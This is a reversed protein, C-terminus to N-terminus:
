NGLELQNKVLEYYKGKRKTLEAHTGTEQVKGHELVIIQDANKVTSLRHAVVIVTKGKYFQKLNEVITRENNADLANTAEDFFLFPPNKYVARAILIRQKQGQSLGQGEQGIKTNYRLPLKMIHEHINATQTAYQLRKLDPEEDAVAINRAISESFIYGDQMVAGCQSRWWSPSFDWLNNQGVKIEGQTLPYFQLLLKVLTTKGSGSAGVIATIKGQPISLNINDLAKPSHPGEYQFSLNQISFNKDKLVPKLSLTSAEEDPRNHIENIRDLSIQADQLHHIFDILKEIPSNLQGIIYQVALMMGLTMNGQIVASAAVVTILINKGQNIITSGSEEYQSLQLSQMNTKFLDAQLDEWEWRKIKQGNQLKIEQMGNILQYTLSQNKANQEFYIYDLKKRKRLFLVIWGGYLVSGILFIIFILFNYYWLVAGFILLNFVSFLVNLSQATLFSEVREHDNMRQLLDGVLKTDFFHMPLKMLKIFFDSLMSINIRVSIHLLIWRQIFEAAMQSILLVSQALLVLWIFNINRNNIGIDVISQTLFPFILQLLSGLLLGLFLQFFFKKYRLFYNWLIKLGRRQVKEGKAQYFAETPELLLVIGKEEGQSVTSIWHKAFEEQTYTLLGKGPDAVYFLSQKRFFNKYKVKYVVVFHNQDWHVICPLLAQTELQELTIRGGLTKFGIEESADAIGLLSVGERTIHCKKRLNEMSYHKGYYEAIMMLSAPGCDM